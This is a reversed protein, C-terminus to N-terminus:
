FVEPCWPLRDGAFARSAAALAGPRLESVLGAAALAILTPGGLYAAGLETSSLALDAQDQTRDCVAGRDTPRCGGGAPTGRASSTGYTSCWTWRRRTPGPPWRGTSTPWGCGSRTTCRCTSPACTPSSTSCRTTWRRGTCRSGPRSTSAPWTHGSRRTAAPTTAHVHGWTSAATTAVRSARRAPATPRSAPSRATRSPTSRTGGRAPGAAPQAGPRRGAPRGLCGAPRPLRGLDAPAGRVGGGRATPGEGALHARGPRHGAAGRAPGATQGQARDLGAPPRRGRLRVARLHRGGFGLARRGARGAGRATRDAPPADDGDAPRPAPPDAAGVRRHGRCDSASRGPVTMDRTYIGATAVIQGDDLAALSREPEFVAGLSERDDDHPDELFAEALVRYFAPFETRDIPRLELDTM